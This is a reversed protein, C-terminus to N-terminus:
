ILSRRAVRRDRGSKNSYHEAAVNLDASEVPMAHVREPRLPVRSLLNEQIHTLNRDAHGVPAVREDVQVLHLNNWPIDEDILDRLMMWPTRGGSLALVFRGRAAVAIRAQDAIVSAATKAVAEADALVEIKM